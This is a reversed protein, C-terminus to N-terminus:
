NHLTYSGQSAISEYLTLSIVMFNLVIAAIVSAGGNGIDGRISSYGNDRLFTDFAPACGAYETYDIYSALGLGFAVLAIFLCTFQAPKSDDFAASRISLLFTLSLSAVVALSVLILANQGTNDCSSAFSLQQNSLPILAAESSSRLSFGRLGLYFKYRYSLYNASYTFWAISYNYSNIGGLAGALYLATQPLSFILALVICVQNIMSKQM